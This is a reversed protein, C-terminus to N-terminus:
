KKAGLQKKLGIDEAFGHENKIRELEHLFHIKERPQDEWIFNNTVFDLKLKNEKIRFSKGKYTQNFLFKRENFEKLHIETYPISIEQAVKNVLRRYKLILTNTLDNFQYGIIYNRNRFYILLAVALLAPLICILGFIIPNDFLYELNNTKRRTDSKGTLYFVAFAVGLFTIIAVMIIELILYGFYSENKTKSTTM